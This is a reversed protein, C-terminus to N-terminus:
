AAMNTSAFHYSSLIFTDKHRRVGASTMRGGFGALWEADCCVDMRSNGVVGRCLQRPDNLEGAFAQEGFMATGQAGDQLFAFPTM